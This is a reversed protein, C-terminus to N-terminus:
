YSKIESGLSVCVCVCLRLDLGLTTDTCKLTVEGHRLGKGTALCVSCSQAPSRIHPSPSRKMNCLRSHWCVCVCVCVCMKGGAVSIIGGGEKGWLALVHLCTLMTQTQYPTYSVQWTCLTGCNINNHGTTKHSIM